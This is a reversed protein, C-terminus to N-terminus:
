YLTSNFTDGLKEDDVEIGGQWLNGWADVHDAKLGADNMAAKIDGVAYKIPNPSQELPSAYEM